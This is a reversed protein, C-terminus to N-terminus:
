EAEDEGVDQDMRYKFGYNIILGLKKEEKRECRQSEAILEFAPWLSL